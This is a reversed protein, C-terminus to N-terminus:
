EGAFAAELQAYLEEPDQDETLEGLDWQQGPGPLSPPPLPPQEFGDEISWSLGIHATESDKIPVFIAGDANPYNADIWEQSAVEINVVKGDIVKAINM